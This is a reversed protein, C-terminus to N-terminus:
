EDYYLRVEEVVPTGGGTGDLDLKYQVWRNGQLADEPTSYDGDTFYTGAGSAGYWATWTGPSGASDPATRVQARVTCDSTCPTDDEDWEIRTVNTARGLNFASSTLTGSGGGGGSAGADPDQVYMAETLDVSVMDSGSSVLFAKFYLTNGTLPFTNINTNITAVPNYHTALTATTWASGNWYQWTVGDNSLQYNVASENLTTHTSTFGYWAVPDTATLATTNRITPAATSYTKGYAVTEPTFTTTYRAVNSFRLEDIVGNLAASTTFGLEVQRAASAVSGYATGVTGRQVGDIWITMTGTTPTVQEFQAAVHAWTGPTLVVTSTLSTTTTGNGTQFVLNCTGDTTLNYSQTTVGTGWRRFLVDSASCSTKKVWADITFSAAPVMGVQGANVLSFWESALTTFQTAGSFKGTANWTIGGTGTPTLDNNNSTYNQLVAGSTAENMHWLAVTNADVDSGSSTLAASGGSFTIGSDTTYDGSTDYNWQQLMVCTLTVSDLVAPDSGNSVFFAQWNLKGATTSFTTINTNITTATNYDTASSVTAWASGNWWKWTAGNDDSLQYYIEADRTKTATESFAQWRGITAPDYEVVPTVTPKTTPYNLGFPGTQVTFNGSYRASNSVRVEDIVGNFASTGTSSIRFDAASNLITSSFAATGVSVGDLYITLTSTGNYVAAVHRWTSTNIAFAASTVTSFSTGNSVRFNLTTNASGSSVMYLQYSATAVTGGTKEMIVDTGTGTAGQKIWAELTIAGTIDLGSQAADTVSLYDGSGDSRVGTAFKAATSYTTNGSITLNNNNGSVDKATGSVDNLHWLGKTNADIDTGSSTLFATGSGLTLDASSATYDGATTLPYTKIGCGQQAGTATVEGATSIDVDDTQSDYQDEASWVAQGDGGAWDTQKWIGTGWNSLQITQEVTRTNGFQGTWTVTITARRTRTDRNTGNCTTLDNTANRCIDTFTLTRTFGDTADSSGSLTWVNSAVTLGHPGTASDQITYWDHGAISRVASVGQAAIANARVRSGSDGGGQGGYVLAGITGSVIISFTAVALMAEVISFGKQKM